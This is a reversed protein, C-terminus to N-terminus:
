AVTLVSFFFASCIDRPTLNLLVVHIAQPQLFNNEETKENHRDLAQFFAAILLFPLWFNDNEERAKNKAL